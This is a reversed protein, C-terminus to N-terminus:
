IAVVTISRAKHRWPIHLVLLQSVEPGVSPPKDIISLVLQKLQKQEQVTGAEQDPKCLAGLTCLPLAAHQTLTQAM